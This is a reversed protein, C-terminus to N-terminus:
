SIGRSFMALSIAGNISRRIFSSTSLPQRFFDFGNQGGVQQGFLFLQIRSVQCPELMHRQLMDSFIGKLFILHFDKSTQSPEALKTTVRAQKQLPVFSARRLQHLEDFDRFFIALPTALSKALQFLSIRSGPQIIQAPVM